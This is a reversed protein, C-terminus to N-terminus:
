KGVLYYGHVLAHSIKCLHHFLLIEVTEATRILENRGVYVQKLKIGGLISHSELLAQLLHQFFSHEGSFKDSLQGPLLEYYICETEIISPSRQRSEIRAFHRRHLYLLTIDCELYLYRM